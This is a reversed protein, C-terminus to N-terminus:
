MRSVYDLTRELLGSARVLDSSAPRAPGSLWESAVQGLSPMSQAALSIGIRAAQRVVRPEVSWIAEFTRESDVCDDQGPPEWGLVCAPQDSADCILAWERRLPSDAPIPIEALPGPQMRSEEFDAFVVTQRATSAMNEWRQRAPRYHRREQFAALLIPNQAAACCEDEIAYTLALLTRKDMKHVALTPDRRRLGAFISTEKAVDAGQRVREIAAALSLGTERLRLVEAVLEYDSERYRRQGAPTRHPVPVGYRIEWNRLGTVSLGTRRAM